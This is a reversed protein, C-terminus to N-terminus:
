SRSSSSSPRSRAPSRTPGSTGAVGLPPRAARRADPVRPSSAARNHERPQLVRRLRGRHLRDSRYLRRSRLLQGRRVARRPRQRLQRPLVPRRLSRAPVHRRDRQRLAVQPASPRDRPAGPTPSAPPVRLYTLATLEGIETPIPGTIQNGFLWRRRRPATARLAPRRPRPPFECSGWTRSSASRLRSRAPSRTTKSGGAVGFTLRAARRADSVRPSSAPDVPEHAPGDRDPDHRYDGQLRAVQSVSPRDRPAGPTPFAPPVRLSTTAAPDYCKGFIPASGSASQLRRHQVAGKATSDEFSSSAHLAVVAAEAAALQERLDEIQASEEVQTTSTTASEKFSALSAEATAARSEAAALSAEATTARTEAAALEAAAALQERLADVEAANSSEKFFLRKVFATAPSEASTVLELSAEAAALRERLDENAARLDKNQARLDKDEPVPAAEKATPSEKFFFLNKVFKTAKAALSM